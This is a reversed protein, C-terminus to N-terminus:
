SRRRLLGLGLVGLGLLSMTAPEPVARNFEFHDYGFGAGVSRDDIFLKVIGSGGALGLVSGNGTHGIVSAVLNNLSDYAYLDVVDGDNAGSTVLTLGGISYNFLITIDAECSFNNENLACIEHDIGAAGVYFPGSSSHLTANPLIVPSNHQGISLGSFDLTDAQAVAVSLM